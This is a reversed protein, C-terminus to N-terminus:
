TSPFFSEEMSGKASLCHTVKQLRLLENPKLERQFYAYLYSGELFSLSPYCVVQQTVYPNDILVQWEGDRESPPIAALAENKSAYIRDFEDWVERFSPSFKSPDPFLERGLRILRGYSERDAEDYHRLGERFQEAFTYFAFYGSANMGEQFLRETEPSEIQMYYRFSLDSM